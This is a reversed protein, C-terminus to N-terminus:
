IIMDIQTTNNNGGIPNPSVTVKTEVIDGLLYIFKRKM